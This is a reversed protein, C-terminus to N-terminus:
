NNPAHRAPCDHTQLRETCARVFQDATEASRVAQMEEATDGFINRQCGACLTYCWVIADDDLSRILAAPQLKARLQRRRLAKALARFTM